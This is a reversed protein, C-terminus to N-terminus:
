GTLVKPLTKIGNQVRATMQDVHLIKVYIMDPFGRQRPDPTLRLLPYGFIAM